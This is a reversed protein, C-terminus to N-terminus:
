IGKYPDFKRDVAIFANHKGDLIIDARHGDESFRSKLVKISLETCVKPTPLGAAHAEQKMRRLIDLTYESYVPNGDRDKGNEYTRRDEIATFAIGLMMDGSYEIASTDRGSDIEVTGTKNSARNNAVIVMIVTNERKAFDKLKFITKKMGEVADREGSEILQLYDICVLPAPKGQAKIRMTEAEMASIISDINNTVGDPNYIFRPAITAKYQAAAKMIAARTKDDWSYGRLIDLASVDAGEDRYAIRSLSRALLQDRSMELNIYLCDNGNEAMKEFIRQAIITKGMAPPAGLTVLTKRIFGGQLARDIDQIGTPIPEFTRAERDSVKAIFDELMGEGTRKRLEAAREEDRGAKIERAQAQLSVIAAHLREPDKILAENADKAGGYLEAADADIFDLGAAKMGDALKKQAEQGPRRGNPKETDNDLALIYVTEPHKKAEELLRAANTTAGIGVAAAAGAQYLSITDFEGECIFAIDAGDLEALNFLEGQKVTLKEFGEEYEHLPKEIARALYSRNSRPLIIRKTPKSDPRKPHTWSACYGINFIKISTETIARAHLYDLAEPSRLLEEHAQKYLESYDAEPEAQHEQQKTQGSSDTRKPEAATSSGGIQYGARNMAENEGCQWIVRLAGLTDQGKESFCGRSFCTVRNTKPDFALAGTRHDGRGSDCVPCIYQPNGRVRGAKPSIQLSVFDTLPRKNIADRIQERTM